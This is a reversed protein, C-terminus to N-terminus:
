SRSPRRQRARGTAGPRRRRRGASQSHRCPNRRRTRSGGLAPTARSTLSASTALPRVPVVPRRDGVPRPRISASPKRRGLRPAPGRRRGGGAVHHPQDRRDRGRRAPSREPRRRGRGAGRQMRPHACRARGIATAFDVDGVGARVVDVGGADFTADDTTILFGAGSTFLATSLDVDGSRTVVGIRQGAKRPPGYGEDRVTGAGVLIVDAITRLQGLVATDTPSSLGASNGGVVTSGDISAVMCLGVWPRDPRRGLAPRMPTPSPSTTPPSPSCDACPQMMDSEGSRHSREPDAVILLHSIARTGGAGGKSGAREALRATTELDRKAGVSVTTLLHLSDTTVAEIHERLPEDARLPRRELLQVLIGVAQAAGHDLAVPHVHRCGPVLRPCQDLLPETRHDGVVSTPRQSGIHAIRRSVAQRRHRERPHQQGPEPRLVAEARRRDVLHRPVDGRAVHEPRRHRDRHGIEVAGVVQHDEARVRIRRVAAHTRCGVEGPTDLRHPGTSAPQDHDIGAQRAGRLLGVLPDRDTRPGIRQQEGRDRVRHDVLPEGIGAVVDGPVDGSEVFKRRCEPRERGFEGRIRRADGCLRDAPEGALDGGRRGCRHVSADAGGRGLEARRRRPQDVHHVDEAAVEVPGTSRHEGRRHGTPRRSAALRARAAAEGDAAPVAPHAAM